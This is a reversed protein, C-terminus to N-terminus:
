LNAKRKLTAIIYSVKNIEESDPSAQMDIEFTSGSIELQSTVITAPSIKSNKLLDELNLKLGQDQLINFDQGQLTLLRMGILEEFATNVQLFLGQSDLVFAPDSIVRILNSAEAGRDINASIKAFEPSKGMRGIASNINELFKKFIDFEYKTAISDREGRLAGDLQITSDIIMHTLLRYLFFYLLGGMVLAIILIRAFLGITSSWDQSDMKYLIISEAVTLQQGMEQSYGHIPVSVGIVSGGLETIFYPETEHKRAVSVFQDNSYSQAKSLPAIIHGDDQSIVLASLVGDEGEALDTRINGEAGSAISKESAAALQRAITLARRHAEKQVGEHTLAAMPITALATVALVFLAIFAAFVHSLPYIEALRYVGPLIIKDVYNQVLDLLTSPEQAQPPALPTSVQYAINENWIQKQTPLAPPLNMSRDETNAAKLEVIINHFAIRDGPRLIRHQIKVGNVFTGNSSGLDTVAVKSNQVSFRAHAKSVGTSSLIIDCQPGRGVVHDGPSLDFTQGLNAGKIIKIKLV